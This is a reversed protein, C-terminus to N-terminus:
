TVVEPQCKACYYTGRGGVKTKSVPTECKPCPEGKRTHVQLFNQYDGTSGHAYSFTQITTGRREVAKALIEQTYKVVNEADTRTLGGSKKMPHINSAFLVEDVYINGLGTVVKQALLLSKIPIKKGQLFAMVADVNFEDSWPEPGLISLSKTTALDVSKEYLHFTGFKRTDEYRLKSGNDFLFEVHIHKDRVGEDGSFFYKGEMRLHSLIFYDDLEFILYKGRRTIDNVKQGILKAKFETPSETKIMKEVYVFVDKITLGTVRPQLTRKVTEVEPLEPMNNSLYAKCKTTLTTM